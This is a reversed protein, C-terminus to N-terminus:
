LVAFTEKNNKSLNKTINTLNLIEEHEAKLSDIKTISSKQPPNELPGTSSHSSNHIPTLVYHGREREGGRDVMQTWGREGKRAKRGRIEKRERIEGRERRRQGRCGDM